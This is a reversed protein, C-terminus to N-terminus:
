LCRRGLRFRRHFLRFIRCLTRFRIGACLRFRFGLCRSRVASGSHVAPLSKRFVNGQLNGNVVSAHLSNGGYVVVVPGSPNLLIEAVLVVYGHFENRNRSRINHCIIRQQRSGLTQGGNQHLVVIGLKGLPRIVTIQCSVTQLVECLNRRIIIRLHNFVVLKAVRFEVSLYIECQSLSREIVTTVGPLVPHTHVPQPFDAIVMNRFVSLLEQVGHLFNLICTDRLMGHAACLDRVSACM